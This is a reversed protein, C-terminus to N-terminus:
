IERKVAEEIAQYFNDDEDDTQPVNDGAEGILGRLEKVAQVNGTQAEQMLAFAVLMKNDCSEPSVGARSLKNWKRRDAVPLSLLFDTYERLTKKARRAEGSAKGGERAIERQESETRKDFPILNQENAVPDSGRKM